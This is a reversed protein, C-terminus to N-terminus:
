KLAEVVSKFWYEVMYAMGEDNDYSVPIGKENMVHFAVHSCEHCLTFIDPKDHMWMVGEYMNGDFGGFKSDAFEFGLKKAEKQAQECTLNILVHLKFRYRKDFITRKIM